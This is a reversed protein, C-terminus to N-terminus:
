ENFGYKKLENLTEEDVNGSPTIGTRKQFELISKRINQGYYNGLALKNTYAPFIKRMFLAIKGINENRDGLTFYGKEGLFNPKIIEFNLGQTNVVRTIQENIYFIEEPKKTGNTTTLVWYGLNNKIWGKGLLKGLGVSIHHHYGTTNGSNDERVIKEFQKYTKGINIQNLEDQSIHGIMITVFDIGSPTEVPELSTLWLGNSTGEKIYKKVVQCDFPAIFYGNNSTDEYKEDIPYDKYDLDGDWHRRHYGAEYSISINMIESPYYSKM